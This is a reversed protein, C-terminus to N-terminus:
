GQRWQGHKLAREGYGIDEVVYLITRSKRRSAAPTNEKGQTSNSMSPCYRTVFFGVELEFPMLHGKTEERGERGRLGNQRPEHDCPGINRRSGKSILTMVLSSVFPRDCYSFLSLLLVFPPEVWLGRDNGGRGGIGGLPNTDMGHWAISLIRASPVQDIRNLAM